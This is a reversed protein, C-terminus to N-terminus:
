STAKKLAYNMICLEYNNYPLLKSDRLPSQFRATPPAFRLGRNAFFMYFRKAIAPIGVM